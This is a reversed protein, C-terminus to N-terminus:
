RASFNSLLGLQKITYPSYSGESIVFWDNNLLRMKEIRYLIFSMLNKSIQVLQLQFLLFEFAALPQYIM